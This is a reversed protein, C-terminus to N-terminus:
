VVSITHVDGSVGPYTNAPNSLAVGEVTPADGVDNPTQNSASDTIHLVIRYTRGTFASALNTLNHQGTAPNIVVNFILNDGEAFPISQAIPTAQIGHDVDTRFRDPDFHGIQLMIERGINDSGTDANTLGNAAQLDEVIGEYVTHGLRVIENKLEQENDFLDVGHYTNFLKYALYRIFDHKVMSRDRPYSGYSGWATTSSSAGITQGGAPSLNATYATNEADIDTSHISAHAINTIPWLEACITYVVDNGCLDPDIDSADTQFKFIERMLELSVDFVAACSADGVTIEEALISACIDLTISTDFESIVFNIPAVTAM